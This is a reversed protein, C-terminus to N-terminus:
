QRPKLTTIAVLEYTNDEREAVLSRFASFPVVLFLAFTLIFYYWKFMAAGDPRLQVGPGLNVIGFISCIWALALIFTFALSFQRSKLAQRVEKVLLPNLWEGARELWDGVRGWFSNAVATEVAPAGATLAPLNLPPTTEQTSM